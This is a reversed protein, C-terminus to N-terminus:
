LWKKLRIASVVILNVIGSKAGEPVCCLIISFSFKRETYSAPYNAPLFMRLYTRCRRVFRLWGRNGHQLSGFAPVSNSLVSILVDGATVM